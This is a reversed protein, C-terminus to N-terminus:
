HIAGKKPFREVLTWISSAKEGSSGTQLLTGLTNDKKGQQEKDVYIIQRHGDRQPTM